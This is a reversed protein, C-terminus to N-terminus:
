TANINSGDRKFLSSIEKDRRNQALIILIELRTIEVPNSKIKNNAILAAIEM